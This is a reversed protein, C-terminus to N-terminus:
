GLFGSVLEVFRGPQEWFFLHGARPFREVRAGAIREALLDSNRKDVVADATGTLLLTPASIEGVREFADFTVGAAAQALWAELPQATALRHAVIREVLEPRPEGLGNEVFRRL